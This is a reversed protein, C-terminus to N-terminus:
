TEYGPWDDVGPVCIYEEPCVAQRGSVIKHARQRSIGRKLAIERVTLWQGDFLHVAAARVTQRRNRNQESRTAWRCNDPAYPGDNNIRDITTGSPRPGMDAVFNEFSQWRECVFIGRSGYHKFKPDTPKECRRKMCLWTHYDPHRSFGHRIYRRKM